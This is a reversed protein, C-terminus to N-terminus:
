NSLKRALEEIYNAEGTMPRIGAFLQKDFLGTRIDQPFPAFLGLVLVCNMKLVKPTRM